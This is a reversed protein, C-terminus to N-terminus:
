SRDELAANPWQIMYNLYESGGVYSICGKEDLVLRGGWRQKWSKGFDIVIPLSDEGSDRLFQHTAARDDTSLLVESYDQNYLRIQESM